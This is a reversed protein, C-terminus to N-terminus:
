EFRANTLSTLRGLLPATVATVIGASLALGGCLVWWFSAVPPRWPM